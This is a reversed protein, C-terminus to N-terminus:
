VTTILRHLHARDKLNTCPITEEQTSNFYSSVGRGLSSHPVGELSNLRFKVHKKERLRPCEVSLCSNDGVVFSLALAHWCQRITMKRAAVFYEKVLRNNLSSEKGSRYINTHVTCQEDSIEVTSCCNLCYVGSAGSASESIYCKVFLPQINYIKKKLQSPIFNFNLFFRFGVNHLTEDRLSGPTENNWIIKRRNYLGQLKRFIIVADSM